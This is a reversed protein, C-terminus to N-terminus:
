HHFVLAMGIYGTSGYQTICLLRCSSACSGQSRVAMYIDCLGLNLFTCTDRGVALGNM